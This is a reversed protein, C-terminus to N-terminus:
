CSRTQVPLRYLIPLRPLAGTKHKNFVLFRIEELDEFEEEDEQGFGYNLIAAIM